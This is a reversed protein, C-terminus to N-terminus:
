PSLLSKLKPASDYSSVWDVRQPTTRPGRVLRVVSKATSAPSSTTTDFEFTRERGFASVADTAIVGILEAEVNDM